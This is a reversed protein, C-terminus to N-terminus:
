GLLFLVNKILISRKATKARFILLKFYSKQTVFNNIYELDETYNLDPHVM